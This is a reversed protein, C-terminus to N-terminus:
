GVDAQRVPAEEVPRRGGVQGPRDLDDRGVADGQPSGQVKTAVLKTKGAFEKVALPVHEDQYLREFTQVDKPVPYMVIIKVAPMFDEKKL